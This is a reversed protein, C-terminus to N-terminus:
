PALPEPADDRHQRVFTLLEEPDFRDARLLWGWSTYVVRDPMGPRPIAILKPTRTNSSVGAQRMANQIDSKLRKCAEDSLDSCNYYVVVYGHELNHLLQEDPLVEEYFGAEAPQAWHQGSTPPNSNYDVARQGDPIHQAGVIPIQEGILTETQFSAWIAYGFLALFGIGGLILLAPVIPLSRRPAIPHAKRTSKAM